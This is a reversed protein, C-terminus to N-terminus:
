RLGDLELGSFELEKYVPLFMINAYMTFNLYRTIDDNAKM